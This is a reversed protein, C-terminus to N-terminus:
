FALDKIYKKEMKQLDATVKGKFFLVIYAFFPVASLAKLFDRRLIKIKV